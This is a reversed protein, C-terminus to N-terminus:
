LSFYDVNTQMPFEENKEHNRCHILILYPLHEFGKYDVTSIM